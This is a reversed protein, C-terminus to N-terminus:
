NKPLEERLKEREERVLQWQEKAMDILKAEGGIHQQEIVKSFFRTANEIDNIRRSLEAIMYMVRVGSMQTSAYDENSFSELYYDRSLKIFREEQELNGMSRYLWGIRLSLGALSVNKEKKITGCLLALKYAQVAQSITREGSFTHHVWKKTIQEDIQEKVGPAFYKNFDETFSFGCHECVFVNYFLANVNTDAYIPRFDSETQNVKIFKSRVKYSPFTKKCNICEIQKEYYPSMEM